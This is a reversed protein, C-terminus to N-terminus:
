KLCKNRQRLRHATYIRRADRLVVEWERDGLEDWQVEKFFSCLQSYETPVKRGRM